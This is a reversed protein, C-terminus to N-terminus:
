GGTVAYPSTACTTACSPIWTVPNHWWCQFDDLMCHSAGPNSTNTNNPDCQDASLSCMATFPAPQVWHQGGNYTPKAYAPSGYRILPSATWGLVREQYPWSAPHAADAYTDQLYPDRNPPYDLNAPNNTWGLGWTGHPGTCSPGPTCGTTNGNAANPQVGSNYAWAAFYWNELYRPDANNATIGASYLQNWTTELIQLGAAINEQYDVAVKWQGHESLSHDGIHMGDTVQSIGYGCDSAAYNISVIDGGAGYYSAILPDGATGAPAHWSAQSWNSEQAMIGEFISRPVTNTGGAPHSLPILPFDSNPAYAVLGMNGFGAPRTYASGTLLGQEALQVAWDVQAPNPQMVQRNANLPPVACKPSQAQTTNPAAATATDGRPSLRNQHPAQAPQPAASYTPVQTVAAKTAAPVAPALVKGTKTALLATKRGDADPGLLADGDLSSVDAGHALAGDGVSRVGAAAPGGPAAPVAGSLVPHGARGQFLQVRGLDGSGLTTVAGAHEHAATATHTGPKTHLFSVGGDAAPRVDYVDGPLTAVVAPNGKAPLSILRNGAVGVVGAAVPVASTLQGPTTVDADIKGTALNATLLRTKGDLAVTFVATDGTGCGPSYYKLGVGGALAHVAGTGLDVSYAFAGHDRAAQTNVASAPLIAVAAYKGDGSVCQYGTWSGDDFGAPHLLAVEQWAFGAAERGVEVHYGQADGHGDVALDASKVADPGFDAPKPAAAPQAAVAPRPAAAVVSASAGTLAVIALLITSVRFGSMRRVRVVGGSM